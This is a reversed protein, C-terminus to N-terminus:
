QNATLSIFRLMFFSIINGTNVTKNIIDAIDYHKARMALDSATM